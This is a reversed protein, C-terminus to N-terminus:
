LALELNMLTYEIVISGELLSQDCRARRNNKRTKVIQIRESDRIRRMYSLNWLAPSLIRFTYRRGNRTTNPASTYTTHSKRRRLKM